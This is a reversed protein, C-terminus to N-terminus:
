QGALPGPFPEMDQENDYEGPYARKDFNKSNYVQFNKMKSYM